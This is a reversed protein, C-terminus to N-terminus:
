RSPASRKPSPRRKERTRASASRSEASTLRRRGAALRAYEEIVVRNVTEWDRGWIGSLGRERVKRYFAPDGLLKVCARTFSGPDKARAVLGGGTNLVIERCGGRDSVVAPLGSAIAEQVANGFTETTSPYLLLDASAYAASLEEGGLYGPFVAKPMNKRLKAELPGRGLLVFQPRVPGHKEFREYVDIFVELDKFWAFQGSYLIVKRKGAGWAKRLEPRRYAPSFRGPTLGRGWVVAGPVGLKALAAASHESPVLLSDAERYFRRLIPRWPRSLYWINREDLYSLFDTHYSVAVPIRRLRAYAEMALGVADPVSLHIIDPKFESLQAFIEPSPLAFKYDPYFSFPIAPVKFVTVGALKDPRSSFTWVGVEAGERRLSAVLEFLTRTAGDYDRVFLGAYIGVRLGALRNGPAPTGPRSQNPRAPSM